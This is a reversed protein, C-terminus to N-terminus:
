EERNLEGLVQELLQNHMVAELKAGAQQKSRLLKEVMALALLTAQKQLAIAAAARENEIDAKAAILLNKGEHKAQIKAQEIIENAHLKANEIQEMAAKKAQQIVQLSKQQALVLDHQGREGAALGAAIQQQRAEIAKIILPWIFKMTVLVLVIFTLIEGFLTINFLEM